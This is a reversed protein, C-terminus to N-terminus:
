SVDDSLARRAARIGARTVGLRGLAQASPTAGDRLLSLLLHETGIAPSGLAAAELYAGELVHQAAPSLRPDDHASPADTAPGAAEAAALKLAELDAGLDHLVDTARGPSTALGLLLHPVDILDHGLRRAAHRSHAIVDRVEEDFTGNTTGTRPRPPPPRRRRPALLTALSDAAAYSTAKLLRRVRKWMATGADM